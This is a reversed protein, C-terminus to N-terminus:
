QQGPLIKYAAIVSIEKLKSIGNLIADLQSESVQHTTMVVRANEEDLETQIILHFSANIESMIRTIKLMQGPRDKVKLSIYYPYFVNEKSATKGEQSFENFRSGTTKMVIDKTVAIIDSLVSNATPLEGAGPGYFMTEGVAAGTVLVANNENQVAALPQSAPILVPGVSVSIRKDILKAIGLLKIKYGLEEAQKIDALEIKQIGTTKIDTLTVNMGFAFQTLIIMKYAADIGAVDNTPDAEAFGLKQASKLAENFSVNNQSMQTLIYNTTGNVIGKVEIIRDAAFSSVITRLIPIGGAVSAEYFLDCHNKDALEALQSGHIAILDKNATIIHKGARLLREIYDKAIEVTGMVEVVIQIDPDNILDNIDTTVTIGSLDVNRKKDPNHVVARKIVLQRGTIGSIKKQHDKILKIVGSGVTGLGLIGINIAQM